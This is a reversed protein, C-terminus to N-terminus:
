QPMNPIIRKAGRSSVQREPTSNQMSRDLNQMRQSANPNLLQHSKIQKPLKQTMMMSQPENVSMDLLKNGGISILKSDIDMHDKKDSGRSQTSSHLDGTKGYLSSSAFLNSSNTPTEMKEMIM